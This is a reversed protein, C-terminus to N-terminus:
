DAPGKVHDAAPLYYNRFVEEEEPDLFYKRGGHVQLGPRDPRREHAAHRDPGLRIVPSM